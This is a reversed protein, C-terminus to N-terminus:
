NWGYLRGLFYLDNKTIHQNRSYKSYYMVSQPDPSHDFMGIAHGIEHVMIRYLADNLYLAGSPSRLSMMIDAKLMLDGQSTHQTQGAIEKSGTLDYIDKYFKVTIQADDPNDIYRFIIKDNTAISWAAFAKKMLKARPHPEIYTRISQPNAWHANAMAESTDVFLVAFILIFFLVFKKM